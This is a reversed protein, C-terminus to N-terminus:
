GSIGCRDAALVNGADCNVLAYDGSSEAVLRIRFNTTAGEGQRGHVITAGNAPGAGWGGGDSGGHGCSIQRRGATFLITGASIEPFPRGARGKKM